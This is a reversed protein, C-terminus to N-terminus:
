HTGVSRLRIIGVSLLMMWKVFLRATSAIPCTRKRTQWSCSSLESPETTRRTRALPKRVSKITKADERSFISRYTDKAFRIITDIANRFTANNRALLKTFM